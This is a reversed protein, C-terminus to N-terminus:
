WIAFLVEGGLNKKIADKGTMVGQSTSIIVTRKGRKEIDMIQAARLFRRLSPKSILVVDTLRPIRKDYKIKAKLQKKGEINEEKVEELFGEKILVKGLDRNLNSYPLVLERRKAKTANKIGIIFNAVIYSM